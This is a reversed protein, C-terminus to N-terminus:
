CFERYKAQNGLLRETKKRFTPGLRDEETKKRRNVKTLYNTSVSTQLVM